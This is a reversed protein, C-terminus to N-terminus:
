VFMFSKVMDILGSPVVIEDKWVYANVDKM